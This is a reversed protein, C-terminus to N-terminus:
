SKWEIFELTNGDYDRTFLANRGSRSLKYTFDHQDLLQILNSFDNVFFAAHRDRGGHAPRNETSDPNDIELLHIQQSEGISLWAGEYAMTPRDPSCQLQLVDRYFTLARQLDKVIFSVHHIHLIEM